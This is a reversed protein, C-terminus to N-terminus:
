ISLWCLLFAFQHSFTFSSLPEPAARTIGATMPCQPGGSLIVPVSSMFIVDSPGESGLAWYFMVAPLLTAAEWFEIVLEKNNTRLPPLSSWVGFSNCLGSTKVALTQSGLQARPFHPTTLLCSWAFHNMQVSDRHSICKGDNKYKKLMDWKWHADQESRSVM